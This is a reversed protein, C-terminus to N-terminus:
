SSCSISTKYQHLKLTRKIIKCRKLHQKPRLQPDLWHLSGSKAPMESLIIRMSVQILWNVSEVSAWPRIKSYTRRIKQTKAPSFEPSHVQRKLLLRDRIKSMSSTTPRLKSLQRGMRRHDVGQCGGSRRKKLSSRSTSCKKPTTPWTTTTNTLRSIITFISQSSSTKARTRMM